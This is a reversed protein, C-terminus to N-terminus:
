KKRVWSVNGNENKRSGVLWGNDPTLYFKQKIYRDTM